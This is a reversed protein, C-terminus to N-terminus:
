NLLKSLIVIFKKTFFVQPHNKLAQLIYYFSQKKHQALVLHLSLYLQLHALMPRRFKGFKHKFAEDELLYHYALEIRRILKDVRINLVSREEHNIIASTIENSYYIPYRAALRMWLEWDESGALARDENFSHQHIVDRRVFVGICSLLNGYILQQNINGQRQNYQSIIKGDPNKMEYALHFIAPEERAYIVKIAESFHNPYVIDDSDLFTIYDGKAKQIGFNRAAGREGNEKRFYHVQANLFPALVEETHDTSGDDVVIIEFHPYEQALVSELTHAILDARNYSPIIISFFIDSSNM